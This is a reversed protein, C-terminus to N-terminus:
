YTLVNVWCCDAVGILLELDLGGDFKKVECKDRWSILVFVGM